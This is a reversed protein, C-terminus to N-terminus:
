LTIAKQKTIPFATIETILRSQIHGIVRGVVDRAFQDYEMTYNAYNSNGLIVHIGKGNCEARMVNTGLNDVCFEGGGSPDKYQTDVMVIDGNKYKPEMSDGRVLVPIIRSDKISRNLVEKTNM